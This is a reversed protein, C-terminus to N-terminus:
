DFSEPFLAHDVDVIGDNPRDSQFFTKTLLMWVHSEYWSAELALATYFSLRPLNIYNEAFWATQFSASLSQYIEKFLIDQNKIKESDIFDHLYSVGKLIKHDTHDTGLIPSAIASFGIIHKQAFERNHKLFHLTDVGGKSFGIIWLKEGPNHEIYEQLQKELLKANTKVGKTGRVEPCIYKVGLTKSFHAAAREFAPTSFIENLVGSVLVITSGFPKAKLKSRYKPHRHAYDLERFVVSFIEEFTFSDNLDNINFKDSILKNLLDEEEETFELDHLTLRPDISTSLFKYYSHALWVSSNATSHLLRIVEAPSRTKKITGIQKELEQLSITKAYDIRDKRYALRDQYKSIANKLLSVKQLLNDKSFRELINLHMSNYDEDNRHVFQLKTYCQRM